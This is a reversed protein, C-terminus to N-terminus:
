TGSSFKVRLMDHTVVLALLIAHLVVLTSTKLIVTMM